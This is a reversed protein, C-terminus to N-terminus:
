PAIIRAKPLPHDTSSLDSPSEHDLISTLLDYLVVSASPSDASSCLNPSEFPSAVVRMCIGHGRLPAWRFTMQKSLSRPDVLKGLVLVKGRKTRRCEKKRAGVTEAGHGTQSIKDIKGGLGQRTLQAGVERQGQNKRRIAHSQSQSELLTQPLSRM